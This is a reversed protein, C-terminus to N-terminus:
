TVPGAVLTSMITSLTVGKLGPIVKPNEVVLPSRVAFCNEPNSRARKSSFYVSQRDFARSRVATYDARIMVVFRLATYILSGGPVM